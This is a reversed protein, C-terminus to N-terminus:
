ASLNAHVHYMRIRGRLDWGGLWSASSQIISILCSCSFGVLSCSFHFTYSPPLAEVAWPLHLKDVGEAFFARIRARKHPSYRPQTIKIYRRAWQQLLTALLACTISIALSLFWLSNVWVAHSPPSFPISPDVLTAPISVQSGNANALLQYINALYFASNDQSSPKLDQVSVAVLAAVSASFLGTFVLIGDADAKWSEAMRKDEEGTMEVYM